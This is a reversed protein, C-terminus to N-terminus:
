LIGNTADANGDLSFRRSQDPSTPNQGYTASPSTRDSPGLQQQDFTHDAATQNPQAPPSAIEKPFTKDHASNTVTSGKTRAITSRFPFIVTPCSMTTKM